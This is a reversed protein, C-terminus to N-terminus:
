HWEYDNVGKKVGKLENKKLEVEKYFVLGNSKVSHYGNKKLIIGLEQPKIDKGTFSEFDQKVDAFSLKSGPKYFIRKEFM